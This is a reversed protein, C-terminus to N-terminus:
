LKKRVAFVAFECTYTKGKLSLMIRKQGQMEKQNAIQERRIQMALTQTERVRQWADGEQGINFFLWNSRVALAAPLHRAPSITVGPSRNAFYEQVKDSSGFVWDLGSQDRLLAIVEEPGANIFDMALYWEWDAGFWEPKLRVHMGYGAGVFNLQDMLDNKVYHVLEGISELAWRFIRELDDHDYNPIKAVAYDPGFISCRGVIRCLATYATFPHLTEANLLCTLEGYAENLAHLLMLKELDGQSHSSFNINQSLVVQALSKIRNGILDYIQFSIRELPPWAKLTMAPPFYGDDVAYHGQEDSKVLRCIPIVEYGSLDESSFLIHYNLERLRIGQPYRGTGEDYVERVFAVYRESGKPGTKQEAVNKQDARFNPLALYVTVAEDRNGAADFREALDIRQVQDHSQAIVTGDKLRARLGGFEFCDNALSNESVAINQIGYAYAVCYDINLATTERGHREAAQFHQPRLFMGEHWHVGPNRM